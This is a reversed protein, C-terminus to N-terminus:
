GDPLGAADWDLIGGQRFESDFLRAGAAGYVELRVRRTAGTSVFRVGNASASATVSADANAGANVNATDNVGAGSRNVAANAAAPASEQAAAVGCMIAASVSLSFILRAISM